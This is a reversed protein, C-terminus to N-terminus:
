VPEAGLALFAVAVSLLFIPRGMELGTGFAPGTPKSLGRPVRCLRAACPSLREFAVGLFFSGTWDDIDGSVEEGAALESAEERAACESPPTSSNLGRFTGLAVALALVLM